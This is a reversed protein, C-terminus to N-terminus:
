GGFDTTYVTNSCDDAAVVALGVVKYRKSLLNTRHGPSDLWMQVMTAALDTECGSSMGLNEGVAKTKPFGAKYLRVYFAKGDAGNHDLKGTRALYASHARAPRALVPSLKLAGLGHKARAANMQKLLATQGSTEAPTAAGAIPTGVLTMAAVATALSVIKSASRKVARVEMDKAGDIRCVGDGFANDAAQGSVQAAEPHRFGDSLANHLCRSLSSSGDAYIRVEM